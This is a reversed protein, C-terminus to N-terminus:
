ASQAHARSFLSRHRDSREPRIGGAVLYDPRCAIQHRHPCLDRRVGGLAVRAATSGHARRSGTSSGPENGLDPDPRFATLHGLPTPESTARLIKRSRRGADIALGSPSLTASTFPIPTAPEAGISVQRQLRVQTPLDKTHRLRGCRVRQAFLQRMPCHLLAQRHYARLLSLAMRQRNASRVIQRNPCRRRFIKLVSPSQQAFVHQHNPCALDSRM